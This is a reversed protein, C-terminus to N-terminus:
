SLNGQTVSLSQRREDHCDGHLGPCPGGDWATISSFLPPTVEEAGATGRAEGEGWGSEGGGWAGPFQRLGVQQADSLMIGLVKNPASSLAPIEQM